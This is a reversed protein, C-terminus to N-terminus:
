RTNEPMNHEESNKEILSLERRESFFIVTKRGSWYVGCLLSEEAGGEDRVVGEKRGVKKM